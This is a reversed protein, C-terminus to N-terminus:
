VQPCPIFQKSFILQDYRHYWGLAAAVNNMYASPCVSNFAPPHMEYPDANGNRDGFLWALASNQFLKTYATQGARAVWVELGADKNAWQSVVKTQDAQNDHGPTVHVLVTIWEAARPWEWCANAGSTDSSIRCTNEYPGGAQMSAGGGAGQPSSLFSNPTSGSSTYMRFPYTDHFYGPDPGGGYIVIESEHTSGTVDIFMLKGYPNRTGAEVTGSAAGAYGFWRDSSIKVRFQFYFDTGDWVNSQGQWTPYQAHYDAHGYYGGRWKYNVTVDSSNWARRQLTGNAGADDTTKGNDTARIASMPRWWGGNAIGGTPVLVELCGGSGIGDGPQFKITSGHTDTPDNGYNSAVRFADVEARTLFNHAWVVGPGTARVNFDADAGTASVCPTNASTGGSASLTPPPCPKVQALAKATLATGALAASSNVIFDRRKM